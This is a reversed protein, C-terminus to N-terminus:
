VRSIYQINNRKSAKIQTDSKPIAKFKKLYKKEVETLKSYYEQFIAM